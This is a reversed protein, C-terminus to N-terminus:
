AISRCLTLTKVIVFKFSVFFNELILRCEYKLDVDYLSCMVYSSSVNLM